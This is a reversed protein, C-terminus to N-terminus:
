TDWNRALCEKLMQLLINQKRKCLQKIIKLFTNGLANNIYKLRNQIYRVDTRSM